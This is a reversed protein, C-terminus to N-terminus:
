STLFVQNLQDFHLKNVVRDTMLLKGSVIKLDDFLDKVLMNGTNLGHALNRDGILFAAESVMSRGVAAELATTVVIQEFSSRYRSITEALHIFNGFLTPKIIIVTDPFNKLAFELNTLNTISEDLAIPLPSNSIIQRLEEPSSIAAPEEIYEVPLGKFYAINEEAKNLPWSQNADLRFTLQPFKESVNKLISALEAPSDPVKLKITGFGQKFAHEVYSLVEEVSGIGVITNVLVSEPITQIGLIQDISCKNRKTLIMLAMMSLAFRASPLEPLTRLFPSIEDFTYNSDFFTSLSDSYSTFFTRVDDLTETSFGPLPSAETVVETDHIYRVIVGERNKFVSKGTKFPITFPLSYTYTKIM